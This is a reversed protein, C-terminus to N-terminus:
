AFLHAFIFATATMRLLLAYTENCSVVTGQTGTLSVGPPVVTGNLDLAKLSEFCSSHM